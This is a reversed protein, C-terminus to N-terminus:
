AFDPHRNARKCRGRHSKGTAGTRGAHAASIEMELANFVLKSVPKNVQLKITESGTLTLKELNPVIRIAYEIPRVDKPLKGPTSIFDFKSEAEVRTLMILSFVALLLFRM